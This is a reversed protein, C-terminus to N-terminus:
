QTARVKITVPEDTFWLCRAENGKECVSLNLSAAIEHEGAESATVGVPISAAAESFKMADKGVVDGKLALAESSEDALLKLKWPYEPNIKLGKGPKVELRVEGADGVKLEHELGELSFQDGAAPTKKAPAKAGAEGGDPSTASAGKSAREQDCASLAIAAVLAALIVSRSSM